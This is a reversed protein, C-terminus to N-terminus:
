VACVCLACVSAPLAAAASIHSITAYKEAAAAEETPRVSSKNTQKMAHCRCKATSQTLALAGGERGEGDAGRVERNEEM